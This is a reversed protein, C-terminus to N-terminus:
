QGPRADKDVIWVRGDPLLTATHVYRATHLSGAPAWLGSAPDYVEAGSIPENTVLGGEVLVRGDNLRTAVTSRRGDHLSGTATWMGSAPDYIEASDLDSYGDSGAAALM